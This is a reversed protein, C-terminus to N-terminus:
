PNIASESMLFRYLFTVVQARTCTSNVLFKNGTGKTIENESAWLIAKYFVNDSKVDSYPNKVTKPEPKGAARWLFTVVQGRTCAADPSFYAGTGTTIGNEAAWLIAKYFPSNNKVDKFPNSTSAPEPKGAARWLFTVVQGRTTTQNPKFLGNIGTTIENASAWVVPVYFVDNKLDKLDSSITQKEDCETCSRYIGKPYDSTWSGYSHEHEGTPEIEETRKTGCVTCTYTKEGPNSGTPEKTVKGEDWSHDTVAIEETRVTGCNGCTFTRIGAETCTPEQTVTGNDWSHGVADISSGTHIVEGCDECVEDGTYGDETCTPDKAGVTSTHTHICIHNLTLVYTEASSGDESVTLIRVIGGSVEPLVTIGVNSDSSAEVKHEGSVNVEYECTESTFDPVAEGDVTIGSLKADSQTEVSGAWTMIEAETIGVCHSGTTGDKQVFIMQLAIPNVPKEFTYTVLEGLHYTEVSEAAAGIETYDTGNLSYQFTVSEAVDSCNDKYYYLNVSSILQATNWTFTLVATDSTFRNRWNTWRESTNDGPKTIGNIVSSLNDSQMNEPVDQEVSDVMNAVNGSETNVAEAVRVSATVDMTEDGFVSATGHVPVISGSESFMDATVEDWTVAYEGSLTGDFKVGSVVDPLDPVTNQAAAVAINRLAAIENVVHICCSVAFTGSTGFDATGKITYDGIESAAKEPIKEWTVTGEVTEGSRLHGAATTSLSPVTGLKVTYDRIMTYSELLTEDSVESVAKTSIVANEGALTGSTVDVTITGEKETSRVIALAKGGFAKIKATRSDILVSPQQYKDTSAQDGNDVGAIEGAGSLSFTIENDATTILNGNADLVDVSLYSLSSGDADIVTKDTHVELKAASGPTHVASTGSTGAIETTGDSEFARVSISGSQFAVNFSAYLSTSGSGSVATCATSDNSATTYTYYTFGASTKNAKRTATGILTDNRYLKVVPANSYIVVPTKGSTTMMNNSDWATVLHLTTDDQKWQSRYMYYTDKPFGATDVIGFYSSNPIAGAGSVSGSGTGNWPTPEGIYDFGTWVFQGMNYDVTLTNWLTDHATTGWSVCSTDYSTLHYKGDANKQSSQSTYISRSNVASVSETYFLYGNYRSALGSLSGAATYNYGPVGGNNVLVQQVTATYSGSSDTSNDGFTFSRTTDLSRTWDVMNQAITGFDSTNANSSGTILENGFDWIFVCAANRDRKVITKLVFEAWTMSSSGGAIRNDADITKKFYRSFDNSNGNKAATWGDFFEEMVLIGQENCIAIFDEDAPNHSTRIANVGMEKLIKVQRSMADSYAASGLAGQDHHMCVGNLKLKQGNLEFGSSTYNFWRFGFDTEYTDVVTDDVRVETVVTYLNPAETSWLKPSSVQQVTEATDTSGAALSIEASGSAVPDTSGKEYVTNTVSASVAEESENMMEVQVNVTGNGSQIDPTTVCTGNLAVHVPDTVMLTVDRYIGAGSYWRSSAADSETRVAILNETTGDYVLEDTIDFAFSNYGYHNEGVKTGNVYVYADKYAGDFNLLIRKGQYAEGLTFTKRYWGTGGPLFGSEAEGSTTFSQSISYDHPLNVSGWSSDNFNTQYASGSTGLYFKWDRNFDNSRSSYDSTDLYVTEEATLVEAEATESENEALVTTGGFVTMGSVALAATLAASLIRNWLKKEKM